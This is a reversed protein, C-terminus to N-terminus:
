RATERGDSAARRRFTMSWLSRLPRHTLVMVVHLLVFIVVGTAALFHLSRVTQRGGVLEVLGGLIPSLGPAMGLGTLVMLPLLGFVVAAYFAKQWVGYPGACEPCRVFPIVKGCLEHVVHRPRLEWRAPIMCRRFHGSAVGWVLYPVTALVFVWAFAFHWRLANGLNYESPISAWEPFARFRVHGDANESIGLTGTTILKFEGLRMYGDFDADGIEFWAPDHFNGSPGWYLRPHANFITLGSMVLVLMAVAVTWHWLRVAVKHAPVAREAAVADMAALPANDSQTV